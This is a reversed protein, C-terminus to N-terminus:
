RYGFGRLAKEDERWDKKVKVRLELFVRNGLMAEMALRSRTGISKLMQGNKGIVIGKQSDREVYITASIRDLGESEEFSEIEVAVAHPVEERTLELVKERVFEACIFREQQDTILDPPYFPPGEPLLEMLRRELEPLNERTSASVAAVAAFDGIEGAQAALKQVDGAGAQDIKNLVLIVPAAVTKLEEAVLRDAARLGAAADVVFLVVDADSFTERAAGVMAEGLKHLPRHLGPTDLFIAQGTETTLIGKLINRTTQPKDSTIAVKEGVLANVLTSKGVNPRGIVAVFGSKAM